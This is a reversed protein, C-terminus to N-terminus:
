RKKERERKGKPKGSVVYSTAKLEFIDIHCVRGWRNEIERSCPCFLKIRDKYFQTFYFFGLYIFFNFSFYNLRSYKDM